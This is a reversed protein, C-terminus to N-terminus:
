NRDIIGYSKGTKMDFLKLKGTQIEPRFFDFEPVGRKDTWVVFSIKKRKMLALKRMLHSYADNIM